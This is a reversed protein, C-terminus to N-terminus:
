FDRTEELFNTNTNLENNYYFSIGYKKCETLFFKYRKQVSLIEYILSDILDDNDIYNLKEELIKLREQLEKVTNILKITYNKNIM